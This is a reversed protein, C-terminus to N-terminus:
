RPWGEYRPIFVTLALWWRRMSRPATRLCGSVADTSQSLNKTETGFIIVDSPLQESLVKQLASRHLAVTEFGFLKSVASLDSAQLIDGNYDQLTVRHVAWGAAM